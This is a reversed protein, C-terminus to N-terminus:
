PVEGSSGQCRHARCRSRCRVPMSAPGMRVRKASSVPVQEAGAARLENVGVVVVMVVCVVVIVAIVSM